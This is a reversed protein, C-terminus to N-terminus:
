NIDRLLEVRNHDELLQAKQNSVLQIIDAPLHSSDKICDSYTDQAADEGYVCSALISKRDNDTILTKFDMWARFAKGSTSTSETPKGGYKLVEHTLQSNLMQSKTAMGKFVQKLDSDDTEKSALGYGEIRDNNIQILTNLVEAIKENTESTSMRGSNTMMNEYLQNEDKM